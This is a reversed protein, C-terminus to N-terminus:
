VDRRRNVLWGGGVFVIVYVLPVILARVLSPHEIVAYNSIPMRALGGLIMELNYRM